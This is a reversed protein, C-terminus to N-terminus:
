IGVRSISVTTGDITIGATWMQRVTTNDAVSDSHFVIQQGNMGVSAGGPSSLAGDDGGSM